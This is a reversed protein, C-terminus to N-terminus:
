PVLIPDTGQGRGWQQHTRLKQRTLDFVECVLQLLHIATKVSRCSEPDTHTCVLFLILFWQSFNQMVAFVNSSLLNAPLDRLQDLMQKKVVIWSTASTMLNIEVGLKSPAKLSLVM